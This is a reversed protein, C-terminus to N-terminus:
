IIMIYDSVLTKRQRVYVRALIYVIYVKGNQLSEFDRNWNVSTVLNGIVLCAFSVSVGVGVSVHAPSVLVNIASM